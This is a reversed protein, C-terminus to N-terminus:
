GRITHTWNTILAKQGSSNAVNLLQNISDDSPNIFLNELAWTLKKRVTANGEGGVITSISTKSGNSINYTSM